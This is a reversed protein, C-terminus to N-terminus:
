NILMNLDASMFYGNIDEVIDPEKSANVLIDVVDFALGFLWLSLPM